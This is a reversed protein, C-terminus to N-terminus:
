GSGVGGLIGLFVSFLDELYAPVLFADIDKFLIKKERDLIGFRWMDGVTVAGYLLGGGPPPPEEQYGDMAILEVALQTFGRELDANKAEVVILQHSSRLLYDITGRLRDSVAIPYEVDIEFEAYDLLEFFIPSVLFERKATESTLSIHPLKKYFTEKLKDLSGNKIEVRPLELKQMRLKYGFEAVIDKTSNALDFYDSFTYTRDPKLIPTKM